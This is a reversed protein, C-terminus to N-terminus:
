TLLLYRLNRYNTCIENAQVYREQLWYFCSLTLSAFGRCNDWHPNVWHQKSVFSPSLPLSSLILSFYTTQDSLSLFAASFSCLIQLVELRTKRQFQIAICRFASYSLRSLPFLVLIDCNCASNESYNLCQNRMASFYSRRAMLNKDWQWVLNLFYYDATKTERVLIWVFKEAIRAFM